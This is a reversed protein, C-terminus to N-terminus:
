LANTNNVSFIRDNKFFIYFYLSAKMQFLHALFQSLICDSLSNLLPFVSVKSWNHVVCNLDIAFFYPYIASVVKETKSWGTVNSGLEPRHKIQGRARSLFHLVRQMSHLCKTQLSCKPTVQERQLESKCSHHKIKKSLITLTLHFIM